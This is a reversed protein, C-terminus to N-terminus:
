KRYDAGGYVEASHRRNNQMSLNRDVEEMDVVEHIQPYRAKGLGIKSEEMLRDKEMQKRQEKVAALERNQLAMIKDRAEEKLLHENKYKMLIRLLPQSRRYILFGIIAFITLM